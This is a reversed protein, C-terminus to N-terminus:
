LWCNPDKEFMDGYVQYSLCKLGGMCQYAYQCKRCKEPINRSNRLANLLSSQEYIKLISQNFVNGVVIPMRRCALLNGNTDITILSSGAKCNYPTSEPNCLFQIARHMEIQTTRHFFTNKKQNKMLQFFDKTEATSLINLKEAQGTPILRDSWLRDAKLQRAIRAVEPFDKYNNKHVTFSIFLPIGAKKVAKAGKITQRFNGKGRICDHTKENGEISIQIWKVSLRKLKKASEIDILTGNTLISLSFIKEYQHLHELFDFFDPRILPEGGTLTIHVPIHKNKRQHKIFDLFQNFIFLLKNYSLDKQTYNEQYCHLCKLNCHETLHWQLLINKPIFKNKGAICISPNM